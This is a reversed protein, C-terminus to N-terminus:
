RGKENRRARRECGLLAGPQATEKSAEGRRVAAGDRRQRRFGVGRNQGARRAIAVVALRGPMVLRQREIRAHRERLSPRQTTAHHRGHRLLVAALAAVIALGIRVHEDGLIFHAEIKARGAALVRRPHQFRKRRLQILGRRSQGSRWRRGGDVAAGAIAGAGPRDRSM